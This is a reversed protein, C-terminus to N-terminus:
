GSVRYIEIGYDQQGDEADYRYGGRIDINNAEAADILRTLAVNFAGRNEIDDASIDFTDM